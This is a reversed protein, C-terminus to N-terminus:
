ARDKISTKNKTIIPKLGIKPGTSLSKSSNNNLM